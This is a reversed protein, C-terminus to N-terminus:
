LGMARAERFLTGWLWTRLCSHGLHELNHHGAQMSIPRLPHPELRGIEKPMDIFSAYSGLLCALGEFWIMM